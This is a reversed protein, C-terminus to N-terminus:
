RDVGNGITFGDNKNRPKLAQTQKGINSECQGQRMNRGVIGCVSM